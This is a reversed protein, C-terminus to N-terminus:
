DCKGVVYTFGASVEPEWGYFLDKTNVPDFQNRDLSCFYPLKIGYYFTLRGGVRMTHYIEPSLAGSLHSVRVFKNINQKLADNYHAVSLRSTMWGFRNNLNFRIGHVISFEHFYGIGLQLGFGSGKTGYDFLEYVNGSSDTIPENIRDFPTKLRRGTNFQTRNLDVGSYGFGGGFLGVSYILNNTIVQNFQATLIINNGKTSLDFGIRKQGYANVALLFVVLLKLLHSLSKM